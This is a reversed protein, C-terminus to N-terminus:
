IMEKSNLVLNYIRELKSDMQDMRDDLCKFLSNSPNLMNDITQQISLRPSVSREVRWYAKDGLPKVYMRFVGMSSTLQMQPLSLQMKEDIPIDKNLDAGLLTWRTIPKVERERIDALHHIMRDRVQGFFSYLIAIDQENELRFPHKSSTAYIQIRGNPSYVYQVRSNGIAELELKGKNFNNLKRVGLDKYYEKNMSTQLQIRHIYLPLLNGFTVLYELCNAVKQFELSNHLHSMSPTYETARVLGIEKIEMRNQIIEAKISSPFYQQPKYNAITFLKGSTLIHKLTRQASNKNISIRHSILDTYTIGWGSSKYKRMALDVVEDSRTYKRHVLQVEDVIPVNKQDQLLVNNSM